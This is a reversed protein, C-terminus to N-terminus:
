WAQRTIGANDLGFSWTRSVATRAWTSTAARQRRTALDLLQTCQTPVGSPGVVAVTLPPMQRLINFACVDAM